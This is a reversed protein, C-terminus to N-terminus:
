RIARARSVVFCDFAVHDDDDDGSAEDFSVVRSRPFPVNEEIEKM